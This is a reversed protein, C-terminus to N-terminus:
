ITFGKRRRIKGGHAKRGKGDNSMDIYSQDIFDGLMHGANAGPTGFVDDNVMAAIMNHQANERGMNSINTFLNSLNGYLANYWQNRAAMKQRAIDAALSANFQANKSRLEANLQSTKNFAEANFMDTGRNFEASKYRKEWNYDKMKKYADASGLHHNYESALLAANKGGATSGSNMIARNTANTSADLKNLEAFIDMLDPKIYNDINKYTARDDANRVYSMAADLGSTDPKGVGASWMATSVIPGLISAYRGKDDKYRIKRTKNGPNKPDKGEGTIVGTTAAAPDAPKIYFNNTIDTTPTAWSYTNSPTWGTPIYNMQEISGDANQIYNVVQKERAVEDPTKWYTGPHTNRVGQGYPGEFITTYDPTVGPLWGKENVFKGAYKRADEPADKSSYIAQLYKLMNDPSAKLYETGRKYADTKKIAEGVEESSYPNTNNKSLRTPDLGYKAPNFMIEQWAADRSGYWDNSTELGWAGNAFDYSVSNDYTPVYTGFDYGKKLVYALSPNIKSIANLLNENKSYETGESINNDSLFKDWDSDTLLNLARSLGEKITQGGAGFRHGLHGGYAAYQVDGQQQMMAPDIPNGNEDVPAEQQQQAAQQEMAQQEAMQQEDMQGQQQQQAVIQEMVQQQEEPSLKKFAELAEKAQEEARQQEQCEALQNLLRKLAAQSLPDNPRELAEKELKKSVDAYTLKTNKASLHFKRLVEKTPKLRNSFVYDNYVTEGEEVLNPQGDPAIGMPVGEYPNEEHTGGAAIHGLGTSWDAGNSQVDGGLAFLTPISNSAGLYGIMNNKNQAQRNKMSLYDSALGYETAGMDNGIMTLPGGYAASHALANSIMDKGINKINNSVSRDRFSNADTVKTFLEANKEKAWGKKFAGGAYVTKFNKQAAGMKIDNYSGANSVFNKGASITANAQNLAKQNVKTGWLANTVGGIIQSGGIILAGAIPNVAGVAGGITSGISGIAKGAGSSYGGSIGKNLLGGVAGAAGMAIGGMTGKINGKSFPNDVKSIGLSNKSQMYQETTTGGDETYNWPNAARNAEALKDWKEMGGGNEFLRGGSCLLPSNWRNATYLKDPRRM